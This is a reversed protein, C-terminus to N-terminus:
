FFFSIQVTLVTENETRPKIKWVLNKTANVADENQFEKDLHVHPQDFSSAQEAELNNM